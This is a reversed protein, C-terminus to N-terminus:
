QDNKGCAKKAVIQATPSHSPPCLTIPPSRIPMNSPPKVWHFPRRLTPIHLRCDAFYPTVLGLAAPIGGGGGLGRGAVGAHRSGGGRGRWGGRRGRKGRGGAESGGPAVRGGCGGGRGGERGGAVGVRGDAAEVRGLWGGPTTPIAVNFPQITQNSSQNPEKNPQMMLMCM